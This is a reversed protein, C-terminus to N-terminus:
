ITCIRNYFAKEFNIQLLKQYPLYNNKGYEGRGSKLENEVIIGIHM